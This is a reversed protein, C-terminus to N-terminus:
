GCAGVQVRLSDGAVSVGDETAEWRLGDPPPSAPSAPDLSVTGFRKASPEVPQQLPGDLLVWSASGDPWFAHPRCQVPTTAGAMEWRGTTPGFLCGRPVPLAFTVPLGSLGTAALNTVEMPVTVPDGPKVAAATDTAAVAGTAAGAGAATGAGAGTAASGDAVAVEADCHRGSM